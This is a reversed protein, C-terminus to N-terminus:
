KDINKKKKVFVIVSFYVWCWFCILNSAPLFHSLSNREMYLKNQFPLTINSCLSFRPLDLQTKSFGESNQLRVGANWKLLIESERGCRGPFWDYSTAQSPLSQTQEWSVSKQHVNWMGKVYICKWKIFVLVISVNFCFIIYLIYNMDAPLILTYM